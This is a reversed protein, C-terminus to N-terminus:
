SSVVFIAENSMLGWWDTTVATATGEEGAQLVVSLEFSGNSQVTATQNALSPLGGFTVVLGAPSEDTVTGTFTWVGGQGATAMFNTIVPPNSTLTVTAVNSELGQSDTTSADVEGLGTATFTATFTGDPNTVTSGTVMGTFTITLGGPDTDSVQGSLTVTRQSGYSVSLSLSPPAPPTLSGIQNGGYETFWINGDAGPAIGRPDSDATPVSYEQFQGTMTLSGIKNTGSEAFWVTGGPGANIAWPYSDASPISFETFTGSTTVQAIKGANYETVWLNGDSEAAIGAPGACAPANYLTAVGATTIKGVQNSCYSTFWVAGDSGLALDTPNGGVCYETIQGSSNITGIKGVNAEAFWMNGDAGETIGDPGACPTPVPYETVQGTSTDIKGVLNANFESFWVTDDPGAWIDVPDGSVAYETIQGSLTIKAVKDGCQEVFWQNGDPGRTIDLAGSNCTPIPYEVISATLLERAELCEVQPRYRLSNSRGAPARNQSFWDRFRNRIPLRLFSLM